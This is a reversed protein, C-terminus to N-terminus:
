QGATGSNVDLRTIIGSVQVVCNLNYMVMTTINDIHGHCILCGAVSSVIEPQGLAIRVGYLLCQFGCSKHHLRHHLLIGGSAVREHCNPAWPVVLPIVWTIM